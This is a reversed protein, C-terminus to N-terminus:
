DTSVGATGAGAETLGAAATTVGTVAVVITVVVATQAASRDMRDAGGYDCPVFWPVGPVIVM